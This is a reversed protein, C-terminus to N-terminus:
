QTGTVEIKEIAIVRTGGRSYVPGTVRIHKGVYPLLRERQQTDPKDSSFGASIFTFIDGDKTLLGLPSGKKVCDRMCKQTISDKAEGATPNAMLCAIDRLYGETVRSKPNDVITAVRDTAPQGQGLLLHSGVIMSSLLAMRPKCNAM